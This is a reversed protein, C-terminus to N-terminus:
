AFHQTNFYYEQGADAAPWFVPELQEAFRIAERRDTFLAPQYAQGPARQCVIWVFDDTRVWVHCCAGAADGSTEIPNIGATVSQELAQLVRRALGVAEDRTFSAFVPASDGKGNWRAPLLDCPLGRPRLIVVTRAGRPVLIGLAASGARNSEVRRFPPV